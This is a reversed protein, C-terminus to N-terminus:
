NSAAVHLLAYSAADATPMRRSAPVPLRVNDVMIAYRHDGDHLALTVAWKGSQEDRKMHTAEGNWGNFDGVVAVRRATPADFMLRVLRLTDSIRDVVSDGIVASTVVGSDRTVGRLASFTTVSGIGAALALGILSSRTARGAGMGPIGREPSARRVRDMIARKTRESATAPTVRLARGLRREFEDESM